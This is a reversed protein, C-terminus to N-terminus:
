RILLRSVEGTATHCALALTVADIHRRRADLLFTSDLTIRAPAQLSKGLGPLRRLQKGTRLRFYYNSSTRKFTLVRGQKRTAM